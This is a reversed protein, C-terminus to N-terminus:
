ELIVKPHKKCSFGAKFVHLANEQKVLVSICLLLSKSAVCYKDTRNKWKLLRFVGKVVVQGDRLSLIKGLLQRHANGFSLHSTSTYYLPMVQAIM